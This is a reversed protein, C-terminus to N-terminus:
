SGYGEPHQIGSDGIVEWSAKSEVYLHHAVKLKEHGSNLTGVPIYTHSEDNKGPLSSGCVKCFNTHWDHGPKSWYTISDQGKLWQFDSTQVIIVAIGGSGTSARCISCHCLFVDTADAYIEFEVAGCNCRGTIL